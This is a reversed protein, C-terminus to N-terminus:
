SPSLWEGVLNAVILTRDQADWLLVSGARCLEVLATAAAASVTLVHREEDDTVVLFSFRGDSGDAGAQWNATVYRVRRPSADVPDM